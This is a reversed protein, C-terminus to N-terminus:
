DEDDYFDTGDDDEDSSVFGNEEDLEVIVDDGDANTQTNPDM